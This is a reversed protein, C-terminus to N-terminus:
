TAAAAAACNSTSAISRASALSRIFLSFHHFSIAFLSSPDYHPKGFIM